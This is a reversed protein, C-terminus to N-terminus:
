TNEMADTSIIKLYSKFIVFVDYRNRSLLKARKNRM